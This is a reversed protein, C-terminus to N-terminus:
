YRWIQSYFTFVQTKHSLIYKNKVVICTINLFNIPEERSVFFRSLLFISLFCSVCVHTVSAIIIVIFLNEPHHMEKCKKYNLVFLKGSLYQLNRIIVYKKRLQHELIGCCYWTDSQM